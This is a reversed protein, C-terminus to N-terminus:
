RRRLNPEFFVFFSSYLSFGIHYVCWDIGNKIFFEFFYIELDNSTMYLDDFPWWFTLDPISVMTSANYMYKSALNSLSALNTILNFLNGNWFTMQPWELTLYLDFRSYKGYIRCKVYIEVVFEIPFDLGLDFQFSESTLPDNSTM